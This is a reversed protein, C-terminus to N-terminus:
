RAPSNATLQRRIVALKGQLRQQHKPGMRLLMKQGAPLAELSPDAFEYRLWPRTAPIPGKVETLKLQLPGNPVPTAILQDLVEVLRDNFYRGPYGLEEYAQQFLPYWRAYLAVAQKSDIREVFSIFAAYREDNGPAAFTGDGVEAVTYRGPIPNVPWLRPAAHSRGLNDVTAVVHRVFDDLQLFSQVSEQGLWDVLTARMMADSRELKPLPQKLPEEVALPEIPHKIAPEAPAPPAAPAAAISAEAVPPPAQRESWLYAGAGAAIVVVAVIAMMTKNM